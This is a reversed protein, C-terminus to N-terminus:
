EHTRTSTQALTTYGTLESTRAVTGKRYPLVLLNATLTM